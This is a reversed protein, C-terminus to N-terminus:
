TKLFQELQQAPLAIGLVMFTNVPNVTRQFQIKAALSLLTQRHSGWCHQRCRFCEILAPGDIKHM